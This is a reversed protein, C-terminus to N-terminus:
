RSVSETKTFWAIEGIDPDRGLADWERRIREITEAPRLSWCVFREGGPPDFSGVEIQGSNLWKELLALTLRKVLDAPSTPHAERVDRFISWLGVYDDELEDMLKQELEDRDQM